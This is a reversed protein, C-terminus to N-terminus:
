FFFYFDILYYFSFFNIIIKELLATYVFREKSLIIGGWIAKWFNIILFM